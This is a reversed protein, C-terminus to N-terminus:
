GAELIVRVRYQVLAASYARNAVVHCNYDGHRHPSYSHEVQQIPGSYFCSTGKVSEENLDSLM